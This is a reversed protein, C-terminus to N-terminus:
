VAPNRLYDRLGSAREARTAVAARIVDPSGVVLVDRRARTVATYFLERTLLPSTEEPLVLLVRDFESGQSKHVTMAWATEHAPLKATAISRLGGAVPFWARMEGREDPFCVGIDGNFLNVSYDNRTVLLPRSQYWAATTSHGSRALHREVIANLSAVGFRGRNTACLVRIAGLARLAEEASAARAVADIETAVLAIFADLDAPPEIRRVDELAPDELAALAADADGARVAEALRGIGKQAAFRWSYRLEVAADRLAGAGDAVPVSQGALEGVRAAFERSYGDHGAAAAECVDGFVFGAEVSALQDKDGVLVLRADAPVAALLADMLLLDIMSAEDVVVVDFPLPRERGYAVRGGRLAFGLLRHITRAELAALPERVAEPLGSLQTRISETLRAAAKGTPAALAIRAEPRLSLLVALMRAVTTTKGTGPGGSVVSLRHLLVSAAAVAQLDPAAGSAPPPFLARFTAAAAAPDIDAAREAARELISAGVRREAQWYRYLYCRAAHDVVFPALETGDSALGSALLADRWAGAQPFRFGHDEGFPEGAWRRLDICAHGSGRERSLLAATREVVSRHAPPAKRALLEALACDIPSLELAESTTRNM